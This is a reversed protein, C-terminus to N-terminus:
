SLSLVFSADLNISDRDALLGTATFDTITDVGDASSQYHFTDAGAGGTLTDNGGGGALTDNGGGGALTNAM